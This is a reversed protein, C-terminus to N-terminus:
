LPKHRFCLDAREEKLSEIRTALNEAHLCLMSPVKAAEATSQLKDLLRDISRLQVRALSMVHYLNRQRIITTKM